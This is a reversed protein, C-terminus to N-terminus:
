GFSFLFIRRHSCSHASHMARGTGRFRCIFAFRRRGAFAATQLVGSKPRLFPLCPTGGRKSLLIIPVCRFYHPIVCRTVETGSGGYFHASVPPLIYGAM